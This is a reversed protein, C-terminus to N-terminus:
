LHIAADATSALVMSAVAILVIVTSTILLRGRRTLRVRDQRRAPRRRAGAARGRSAMARQGEREPRARGADTDRRAQGGSGENLVPEASRGEAASEFVPHVLRGHDAVLRLHAPRRQGARGTAPAALRSAIATGAPAATNSQPAKVGRSIASALQAATARPGPIPPYPARPNTQSRRRQTERPGQNRIARARGSREAVTANM